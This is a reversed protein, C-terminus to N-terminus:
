QTQNEIVSGTAVIQYLALKVCAIFNEL